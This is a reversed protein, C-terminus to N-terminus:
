WTLRLAFQFQRPDFASVARGAGTYLTDVDLTNNRNIINFMDVIGDLALRETINFRRSVRLDTFLTWPKLGANRGLNGVLTPTPDLYCAPQFWGSPSFRSAVATDGCANTGPGAAIVPRDTAGLDFNRDIGTIINFPRGSSVDVIPAFTWNSIFKSMFGQGSLKGSQLVASFM